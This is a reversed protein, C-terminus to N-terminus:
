RWKTAHATPPALGLESAPKKKYTDPLADIFSDLIEIYDLLTQALFEASIRRVGILLELSEPEATFRRNSLHARHKSIFDVLKHMRKIAETSPRQWTRIDAFDFRHADGKERRGLLFYYLARFDLLFSDVVAIRWSHHDERIEDIAYVM